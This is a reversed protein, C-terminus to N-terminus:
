ISSTEESLSNRLIVTFLFGIVYFIFPIRGSICNSGNYESALGTMKVLILVSLQASYAKIRKSEMPNVEKIGSSSFTYLCYEEM